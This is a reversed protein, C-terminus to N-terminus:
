LNINHNQKLYDKLKETEEFMFVTRNKNKPNAKIDKIIFNNKLLDKTVTYSYIYIYNM